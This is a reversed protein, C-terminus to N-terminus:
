RIHSASRRYLALLFSALELSLLLGRLFGPYSPLHYPWLSHELKGPTRLTDGQLKKRITCVKFQSFSYQSLRKSSSLVFLLFTAKRRLSDAEPAQALSNKGQTSGHM